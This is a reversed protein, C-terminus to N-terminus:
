REIPQGLVQRTHAHEVDTAGFAKERELSFLAPGPFHDADVRKGVGNATEVNHLGRALGVRRGKKHIDVVKFGLPQASEIEEQKVADEIVQLMRLISKFPYATDARSPEEKLGVNVFLRRHFANRPCPEIRVSNHRTFVLFQKVRRDEPQEVAGATKRDEVVHPKSIQPDDRRIRVREHDAGFYRDRGRPGRWVLSFGRPTSTEERCYRCAILSRAAGRQWNSRNNLPSVIGPVAGPQVNQKFEEVSRIMSPRTSITMPERTRFPVARWPPMGHHFTMNFRTRVM